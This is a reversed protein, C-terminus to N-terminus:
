AAKASLQPLILPFSSGVRLNADKQELLAIALDVANDGPHRPLQAIEDKKHEWLWRSLRQLARTEACESCNRYGIM